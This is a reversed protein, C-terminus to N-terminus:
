LAQVSLGVIRWGPLAADGSRGVPASDGHAVSVLGLCFSCTEAVNVLGVQVGTVAGRAVNVLGVQAGRVAGTSVNVLGLQAGLVGRGLNFLGSVQAGVVPGLSVNVLGALQAGCTFASTVNVLGGIELGAIGASGGGLANLSLRRVSSLGTFSSTGVRPVIDVGIWAPTAEQPACRSPAPSPQSRPRRPAARPIEERVVPPPGAAEDRVAAIDPPSPAPAAPPPPGANKKRLLATLEAAEDRVLNGALLAVIKVAAERGAPLEVARETLRGDAARYSLVVHGEPGAGLTLTSAGPARDALTVRAGLERAVAARLEEADLSWPLLEVVFVIPPPAGAGDARAYPAPAGAISLGVLATSVLRRLAARAAGSTV